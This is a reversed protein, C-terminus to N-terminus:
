AKASRCKSHGHSFAKLRLAEPRARGAEWNTVHNKSVGVLKAVQLQTYNMKKRNNRIVDGYHTKNFAFLKAEKTWYGTKGM